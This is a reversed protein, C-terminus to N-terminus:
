AETPQGCVGCFRHRRHWHMLGRAYALVAGHSRDLLPGVARLDQFAGLGRLAPEREPAELGSVDLAFYARTRNLGLFALTDAREVLGGARAV